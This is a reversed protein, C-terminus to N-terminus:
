TELGRQLRTSIEFEPYCVDMLAAVIAEKSDIYLKANTWSNALTNHLLGKETKGDVGTSEKEM